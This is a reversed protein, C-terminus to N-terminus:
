HLKAQFNNEVLEQLNPLVEEVVLENDIAEQPRVEAIKSKSLLLDILTIWALIQKVNQV